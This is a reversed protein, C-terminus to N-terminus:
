PVGFSQRWCFLDCQDADSADHGAVSEGLGRPGESLRLGRWLRHSESGGAPISESHQASDALTLAFSGATRMTLGGHGRVLTNVGLSGCAEGLEVALENHEVALVVLEVALEWLEVALEFDVREVALVGLEVALEVLEVALEWLEVALERLEVALEM